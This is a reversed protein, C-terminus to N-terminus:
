RVSCSQFPAKHLDGVSTTVSMVSIERSVLTACVGADCLLWVCATGRIRVRQVNVAGKIKNTVSTHTQLFTCVCVFIPESMVLCVKQKCNRARPQKSGSYCLIDTVYYSFLIYIVSSFLHSQKMERSKLHYSM